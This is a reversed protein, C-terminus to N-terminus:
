NRGSATTHERKHTWPCPSDTEMRSNHDPRRQPPASQGREMGIKRRRSTDTAAWPAAVGGAAYAYAAAATASATTDSLLDLVGMNVGFAVSNVFSQPRRGGGRGGGGGGGGDGGRRSSGRPSERILVGQQSSSSALPMPMIRRASVDEGVWGDHVLVGQRKALYLAENTTDYNRGPEGQHCKSVITDQKTGYNRGSEVHRSRRAMSHSNNHRSVGRLADAASRPRAVAASPQLRRAVAAPGGFVSPKVHHLMNMREDDTLAVPDTRKQRRVWEGCSGSNKLTTSATTASGASGVESSRDDVIDRSPSGVTVDVGVDSGGGVSADGDLASGGSSHCEAVRTEGPPRNLEAPELDRGAGPEVAGESPGFGVPIHNDVRGNADIADGANEPFTESPVSPNARLVSINDCKLPRPQQHASLQHAALEGDSNDDPTHGPNARAAAPLVFPLAKQLSQAEDTEPMVLVSASALEEAPLAATDTTRPRDAATPDVLAPKDQSGGTGGGTESVGQTLDWTLVNYLTGKLDDLLATDQALQKDM